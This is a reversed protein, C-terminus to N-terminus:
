KLLAEIAREYDAKSIEKAELKKALADIEDGHKVKAAEIGAKDGAYAKKLEAKQEAFHKRLEAPTTNGGQEFHFNVSRGIAGVVVYSGIAGGVAGALSGWGPIMKILSHAASQAMALSLIAGFRSWKDKGTLPQGWLTCIEDVTASLMLLVGIDGVLPVPMAGLLAASLSRRKIVAKVRTARESADLTPALPLADDNHALMDEIASSGSEVAYADRIRKLIENEEVAAGDITSMAYAVEFCARRISPSTVAKIDAELDSDKTLLDEVATGDDLTPQFETVASRFIGREQESIKGDARAVAGVVRLAALVETNSM